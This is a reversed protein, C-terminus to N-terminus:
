ARRCRRRCAPSMSPAPCPRARSTASANNGGGRAPRSSGAGSPVCNATEHLAEPDTSDIGHNGHEAIHGGYEPAHYDDSQAVVMRRGDLDLPHWGVRFRIADVGLVTGVATVRIPGSTHFVLRDDVMGKPSWIGTEPKAKDTSQGQVQAPPTPDINTRDYGDIQVLRKAAEFVPLRGREAEDMARADGDLARM